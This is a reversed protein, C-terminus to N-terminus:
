FRLELMETDGPGCNTGLLALVYLLIRLTGHLASADDLTLTFSGTPVATAGAQFICEGQGKEQIALANWTAVTESSYLGVAPTPGLDVTIDFSTGLTSSAITAQLPHHGTEDTGVTPCANISDSSETFNGSLDVQCNRPPADGEPPHSSGGCAALALLAARM